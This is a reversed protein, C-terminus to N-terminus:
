RLFNSLKFETTIKNHKVNSFIFIDNPIDKIPVARNETIYGQNVADKIQYKEKNQTTWWTKLKKLDFVYGNEIKSKIVFVYVLYDAKSYDIWGPTDRIKKSKTEILLDQYEKYRHKIELTIKGQDNYGILDIGRVQYGKHTQKLETLNNLQKSVNELLWSITLPTVKNERKMDKDKHHIMEGCPGTKM